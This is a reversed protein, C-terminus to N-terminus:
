FGLSVGFNIVKQLPYGYGRKNNLEPDFGKLDPAITFLNYASFYVRLSTSGIKKLVSSPLSYGIEFNKLRVYDTKYLFQTSQTSYDDSTAWYENERNFTRPGSANPNDPTWRNDYFDKFYPGIEGAYGFIYREGGLIGQMVMSFDFDKYRLSFSIAGSSVPINTKDSRVKDNADIVKDDNVDKFIVDGPRAGDWHPYNTVAAEDKFIGMSVYYLEAYIPAGESKQYDPVGPTEDWFILKNKSYVGNFGIQYSLKDPNPSNRYSIDFDFGKNEAKGINEAPLSLGASTPVSANRQSLINDRLNSFIDVTLALNGNLFRMDVGLDRQTASEWTANPNPVVNEYLTAEAGTGGNVISNLTGTYFTSLYQYPNILDNGTKGYSARIKFFSISNGLSKKWYDEESMIYGLSVGPFFGFRNEKSFIYSGQYRWQFEIMYRDSLTYNARGFYNLRASISSSGGNNMEKVGGQNIEDIATSIFYRRYGYLYSSSGEIKEVAGMLELTQKKSINVKYNLLASTLLNQSKDDTQSLKPDGGWTTKVLVPDGNEDLTSGDWNYTNWPKNWLKNYQFGEDLAALLNLSLGKVWPVDIKLNLNTNLVYNKTHSYGLESTGLLAPNAGGEGGQAPLGNPWFALVTPKGLSASTFIDYVPTSPANPNELRGSFDARLSIYKNIKGDLNATFSQQKYNSASNKYFGDQFKTSASIFYRFSESGGSLSINMAHQSSWPKLTEAYWDTNPHGLPDSGDQYLKLDNDSYRNPVGNYFDIENLMTTYEFSNTLKPMSTPSGTGLNYSFNIAPKGIKGRKTTILIVGNAAQAGYIAASADKLVSINDIINPDIRDLSRGPVGDVVILPATNNFTSIGRITIISGDNGPESSGTSVFVGSLKGSLSNSVNMVPLLALDAGKVTSVSGTLTAKKQSGYGVVVIEQLNQTEAVMTVNITAEGKVEIKQTTYGIFTFILVGNDGPLEITYKGNVDTTVGITTGEVQINVGPITSGKEDTVIGTVKQPQKPSLVILNDNVVSYSIESGDLLETMLEPLTTSGKEEINTAKNIDILDSRFLFKLDTKEEIRAFAERLPVNSLSLDINYTQSYVFAQVNTIGLIMFLIGIKMVKLMESRGTFHRAYGTLLKNKM